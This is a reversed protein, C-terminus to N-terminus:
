DKIDFVYKLLELWTNVWTLEFDWWFWPWSNIEIIAWNSNKLSVWLDKTIIDIWVVKLWVLKAIRVCEEKLEKSLKATVNVLIWWAWINSVGRLQIRTDKKPITDLNYWNKEIYKILRDDIEILSLINEYWSGRMPNKNEIEILEEIKHIWDWIVFAPIRKIWLVVKDWIVLIRHEDWEIFNQIIINDGYKLAEKIGYDLEENSKIGVTVWDWHWESVPKTVLPFRLNHEDLNFNELEDKNVYISRPIEFWNRWLIINTLEKDDAIKDWLSSDWWFDNSKFYVEKSNWKIRYFNKNAQLIEVEFWLKKAEEIIVKSTVSFYTM